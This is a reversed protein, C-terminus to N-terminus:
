KQKPAYFNSNCLKNLEIEDDSEAGMMATLWDFDNPHNIYIDRM